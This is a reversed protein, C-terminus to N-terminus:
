NREEKIFILLSTAIIQALAMIIFLTTIGTFAALYGSAMMAIASVIGILAKYKGILKGREKTETIDALLSPAVAIGLGEILGNVVQLFYLQWTQNIFLYLLIVIAYLYGQAILIPKRGLVDSYKGALYAVLSQSITLFGLAMGFNELSKGKQQIFLIYFPGFIGGALSIIINSILYIKYNWKQILAKENKM